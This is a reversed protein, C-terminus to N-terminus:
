FAYNASIYWTKNKSDDGKQYAYGAGFTWADHSAELGVAALWSGDDMVDYHLPATAGGLGIDVSSDTDGFAWIYALDVKPTISWGDDTKSENRFSVGVPMLWINQDDADYSFAKKGDYYSTYSSPDVYMYRLGVYPVIQNDGFVFEKEGRVGLTWANLDRDATLRKGNVYGTIDNSTRTYGLDFMLNTRAEEDKISGYLTAGYADFDNRSFSGTSDGDGYHVAIGSQLKGKKAFDFGLIVGDYDTDAYIGGFSSGMNDIDYSKNIYRAWIGGDEMLVKSELIPDETFSFHEAVTDAIDRAISVTSATVGSDEGILTGRQYISNAQPNFQWDYFYERGGESIGNEVDWKQRFGEDVIPQLVGADILNGFSDSAEQWNDDNIEEYSISYMNDYGNVNSEESGTAYNELRDYILNDNSWFTSGTEYNGAINYEADSTAELNSIDLYAGDSVTILGGDILPTGGAEISSDLITTSGDEVNIYDFDHIKSSSTYEGDSNDLATLTNEGTIVLTSSGVSEYLDKSYTIENDNYYPNYNGEDKYNTTLEYGQGSIEGSVTTGNLIVTAEDVTSSTNETPYGVSVNNDHVENLTTGNVAGGAYISGDVDGGDLTITSTGVHSGSGESYNDVAIGGGLVDGNVTTGDKITINAEDVNSYGTMGLGFGGGAIATDETIGQLDALIGSANYGLRNWWPYSDENENQTAKMLSELSMSNVTGGNITINATEVNSKADYSDANNYTNGFAIGGGFIGSTTGENTINVTGVSSEALVGSVNGNDQTTEGTVAIGGGFVGTSEMGSATYINVDDTMEATAKANDVEIAAGGGFVGAAYGSNLYIDAGDTSVSAVAGDQASVGDTYEVSGDANGMSVALGGGMVGFVAGQDELAKLSDAQTESKTLGTIFKNVADSVSDTNLNSSDLNVNITARGTTSVATSSGYVDGKSYNENSNTGDGKWTYDHYAAAVGGGFVGVATTTGELSVNTDGTTATASGGEVADNITVNLDISDSDIGMQEANITVTGDDNGYRYQSNLVANAVGTADVAGAVGGGAVGIVTANNVTVSTSGEVNSEATGGFTSAATGGGAVGVASIGSGKMVNLVTTLQPILDESNPESGQYQKDSGDITLATDGKLTYKAEGGVAAAIGGNTWGVLNADAGATTSVDGERAVEQKGALNVDATVFGDLINGNVNINGVTVTADAGSSIIVSGSEIPNDINGELSISSETRESTSPLGMVNGLETGDLILNGNIGTNAVINGGVAGYYRIWHKGYNELSLGTNGSNVNDASNVKNLYEDIAKNLVNENIWKASSYFGDDIYTGGGTIGYIYGSNPPTVLEENLDSNNILIHDADAAEIAGGHAFTVVSTAALACLIKKKLKAHSM